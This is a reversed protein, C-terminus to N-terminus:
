RRPNLSLPMGMLKGATQGFHTLLVDYDLGAEIAALREREQRNEHTFLDAM